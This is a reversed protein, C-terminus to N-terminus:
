FLAVKPYYPILHKRHVHIISGEQSLLKYTVDSLRDLSKNPGIPLPKLKDFFLVHSFNRKLIFTGIPLSKGENYTKTIYAHSNVIKLLTKMYQLTFKYCLPKKSCSLM